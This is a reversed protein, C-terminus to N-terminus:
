RAFRVIRIMPGGVLGDKPAFTAVVTGRALLAEYAADEEPFAAREAHYRDYQSLVAYDPRCRDRMNPALTGYDVNSRNGRAAEIDGLQVKGQLLARGDVCGIDGIPFLLPWSHPVLDFAFHEVLISRGAPVHAKLWRSALQRTDNLRARTDSATRLMPPVLTLALVLAVAGGALPGPLRRSLAGTLGTLGAGGAIALLPMLALAWREWVLRQVCIILFFGLLPPVIVALAERRRAVVVLGCAALALGVPGLGTLIPGKLYWWANEWPAGGTAGLHRVQAEGRLNRLVTAHDLLLYPSIAFLFGLAMAGYLALRLSSRRRDESHDAMRLAVGGFMALASLAYPWKTAMAAGLWLAALVHDRWRDERAVRLAALLCLLMFFCAMMDSRIIQSWTVHVPNVALLAAAAFATRRDFLERALRWTLYVTAVAFVAMAVRGPLMVWTPDHYIADGFEQVSAFRDSALGAGLVAVTTLALVYMTTTAPHGFWGPDLTPGRLMKLAGLEFTLEDPDNLAPLGFRIGYLRLFLSAALLLGLTV